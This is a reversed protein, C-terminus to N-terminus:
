MQNSTLQVFAENHWHKLELYSAIAEARDKPAVYAGHSDKMHIFRPQREQRMSKIGEWKEKEHPLEQISEMIANRKDRKALTKIQQTLFRVSESDGRVHAAQREEIRRWTEASLYDRRQKKPKKTLSTEAAALIQPYIGHWANM